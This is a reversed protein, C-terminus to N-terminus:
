PKVQVNDADELDALSQSSRKRRQWWLWAGNGTIFLTLISCLCWLIKLPLGGYDGFHLPASLFLAKLYWPLEHTETLEGTRADVLAVRTLHEDLGEAGNLAITYHNRPSFESDPYVLFSPEWGAQRAADWAAQPGIPPALVNVPEGGALRAKIDGLENMQWLGTAITSFGLAFGTLSVVLAWGLVVIGIFNHWDLQVLRSGRGFRIVGFTIRRVYPAYVFIATILSIMVLLAIFAGILEGAPGLFWNAHLTLLFGTPTDDPEPAEIVAGTLGNVFIMKEKGFGKEEAPVYFLAVLGPHEKTDIAAGLIRFGPASTQGAPILADLSRYDEVKAQSAVTPVFGLAEDIEHHFILIIGTVCLVLFLPTAVLSSWRHLWLNLHFFRWSRAAQNPANM